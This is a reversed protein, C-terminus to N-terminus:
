LHDAQDKRCHQGLLSASSPIAASALANFGFDLFAAPGGLTFPEIRKGRQHFRWGTAARDQEPMEAFVRRLM